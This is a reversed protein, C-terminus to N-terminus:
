PMEQFFLGNGDLDLAVFEKMQWPKTELQGNPHIIEQARCAQYLAEIQRVNIRCSTQRAIKPDACQWLHIEVADRKLIAHVEATQAVKRFGLKQTYFTVAATIDAAPLVPIAQLLPAPRQRQYVQFIPVKQGDPGTNEQRVSMLCQDPSVSRRAYAVTQGARYAYSDLTFADIAQLAYSDPAPAVADPLHVLRGDPAGAFAVQITEADSTLQFCIQLELQEAVQAITYTGQVPSTGSQYQSLAPILEWEGLYAPIQHEHHM